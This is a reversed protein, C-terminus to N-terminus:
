AILDVHHPAALLHPAHTGATVVAVNGGLYVFTNAFELYEVNILTDTGDPAHARNDTVQYTHAGLKTITFQSLNGDYVAVDIGGGGNFRDHGHGAFFVDDLNGGIATSNGSGVEFVNRADTAGIFTDKATDAQFYFWFAQDLRTFGTVTVQSLNITHPGDPTSVIVIENGHAAASGTVDFTPTAGGPLQALQDSYLYVFQDSSAATGTATFSFTLSSFGDLASFYFTGGVNFDITSAATQSGEGYGGHIQIGALGSQDIIFTDNGGSDYAASNGYTIDLTSDGGGLDYTGNIGYTEVHDTGGSGTVTLGAGILQDLAAKAGATQLTNYFDVLSADNFSGTVDFYINGQSDRIQLETITGGNNESNMPVNSGEGAYAFNGGEDGDPDKEPEDESLISFLHISYGNSGQIVFQDADAATVTSQGPGMGIAAFTSSPTLRPDGGLVNTYIADAM